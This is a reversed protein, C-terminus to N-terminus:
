STHDESSMYVFAKFGQIAKLLEAQWDQGPLLWADFWPEHGGVRLLDVIARVTEEDDHAYSIFLRM